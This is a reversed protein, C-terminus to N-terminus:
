IQASKRRGEWTSYDESFIQSEIFKNSEVILCKTNVKKKILCYERLRPQRILAEGGIFGHKCPASTYFFVM